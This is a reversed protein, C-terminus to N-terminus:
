GAVWRIFEVVGCCTGVFVSLGLCNWFWAKAAVYGFNRELLTANHMEVLTKAYSQAVQNRDLEDQAKRWREFGEDGLKNRLTIEDTGMTVTDPM